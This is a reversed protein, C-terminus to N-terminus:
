VIPQFPFAFTLCFYDGRAKEKNAGKSLLENVCAVQGHEAASHLPTAYTAPVSIDKDIRSETLLYQMCALAGFEASIHLASHGAPTTLSKNCGATLLAKLCDLKNHECAVHIPGMGRVGIKGNKDVGHALHDRVASLDGKTIAAHLNTVTHAAM